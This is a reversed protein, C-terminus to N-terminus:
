VVRRAADADLFWHVNGTDPRILQAPYEEPNFSGRLTHYVPAAKTNGYVLFAIVFAQNILPATFTIRFQDIENVFIEKVLSREENIIDTHPFLSATHANDGLGLLILDFRCDNDFHKRIAEEYARASASPPSVSTDVVFVQHQQIGIPDFLTEKAMRYNSQPHDGPVLREDSFFFFIKEWAILDRYKVSALQAYLDKPTNGGSLAVTFKGTRGIAEASQKMFFEAM